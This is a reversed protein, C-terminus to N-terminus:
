ADASGKVSLDRFKKRAELAEARRGAGLLADGLSKWAPTHGPSLATSTELFPVADAGRGASVLLRGYEFAILPAFPGTPAGGALRGPLHDAYPELTALAEDVDGQRYFATALTLALRVDDGAGDPLLAIAEKSRGTMVYTDAVIRLLDARMELPADEALPALVALAEDPKGELLLAQGRLMAVKPDDPPLGAILEEAESERELRLACAAAAIRAEQDGPNRSAWPRLLRGQGGWLLGLERAAPSVPVLAVSREFYKEAAPLFGMALSARGANYLVAADADEREALPALVEAADGPRGAEIFLVGLMAQEVQSLGGEGRLPELVAIAGPLDDKDLLEFAKQGAASLQPPGQAPPNQGRAEPSITLLLCLGAIWATKKM